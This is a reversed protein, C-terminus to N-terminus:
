GRARVLSWVKGRETLYMLVARSHCNGSNGYLVLSCILVLTM